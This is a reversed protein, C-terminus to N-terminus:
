LMVYRGMKLKVTFFVTCRWYQIMFESCHQCIEAKCSLEQSTVLHFWQLEFKLLFCNSHSYVMLCNTVGSMMRFIYSWNVSIEKLHMSKELIFSLQWHPRSKFFEGVQINLFQCSCCCHFLSQSTPESFAIMHREKQSRGKTFMRKLCCNIHVDINWSCLNGSGDLSINYFADQM